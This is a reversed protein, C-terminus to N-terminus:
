SGTISLRRLLEPHIGPDTVQRLIERLVQASHFRDLRLRGTTGPSRLTFEFSGAARLEADDEMASFFREYLVKALESFRDPSIAFCSAQRGCGQPEPEARDDRAYLVLPSVARDEAGVHRILLVMTVGELGLDACAEVVGPWGISILALLFVLRHNRVRLLSIM